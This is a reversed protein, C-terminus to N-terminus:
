PRDAGVLCIRGQARVPLVEAGGDDPRMWGSRNRSNSRTIRGARGDNASTGNASWDKPGCGTRWKTRAVGTEDCKVPRRGQDIRAGQKLFWGGISQWPDFQPDTKRLRLSASGERPCEAHVRILVVAIWGGGVDGRPEIRLPEQPRAEHRDEGGAHAERDTGADESLPGLLVAERLRFQSRDRAAAQRAEADDDQERAEDGVANAEARQHERGERHM